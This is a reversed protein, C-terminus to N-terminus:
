LHRGHVEPASADVRCQPPAASMKRLALTRHAKLEIVLQEPLPKLAGDNEDDSASAGLAHGGPTIMRGQGVGDAICTASPEASQGDAVHEGSHVEGYERAEDEPRVFGRYATLEGYRDLTVFAGARGIEAAEFNLPRAELTEMAVEFRCFRAEVEEPFGNPGGYDEALTRYEAFLKAHVAGDDDTM